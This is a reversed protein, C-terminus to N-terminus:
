PNRRTLPYNILYPRVKGAGPFGVLLIIQPSERIRAAASSPILLDQLPLPGTRKLDSGLEEGNPDFGELPLRAVSELEQNHFYEEPTYFRLQANLAFKRDSDAFDKKRKKAPNAPRGAADGVYFSQGRDIEISLQRAEELLLEWMGTWPKSFEMHNPHGTSVYMRKRRRMIGLANMAGEVKTKTDQVSWRTKPNSIGGQNTFLVFMVQPDKELTELTRQIPLSPILKWDHGDVPFKGGRQTEVLCGDLDFAAIKVPGDLPWTEDPDV